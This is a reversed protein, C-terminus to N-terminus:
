EGNGMGWQFAMNGKSGCPRGGHVTVAMGGGSEGEMEGKFEYGHRVARGGNMGWEGNGM